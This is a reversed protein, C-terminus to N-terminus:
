YFRAIDGHEGQAAKAAKGQPFGIAKRGIWSSAFVAGERPRPTTAEGGRTPARVSLCLREALSRCLRLSGGGRLRRTGSDGLGGRGRTEPGGRGQTDADGRM